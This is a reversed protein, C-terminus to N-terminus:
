KIKVTSLVKLHREIHNLKKFILYNISKFTHFALSTQLNTYIKKESTAGVSGAM